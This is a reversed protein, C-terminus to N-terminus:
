KSNNAAVQELMWKLADAGTQVPRGDALKHSGAHLGRVVSALTEAQPGSLTLDIQRQAYGTGALTPIEVPVIAGAHKKPTTATTM